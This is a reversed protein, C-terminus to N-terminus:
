PGLDGFLEREVLDCLINTLLLHVEETRVPSPSPVRIEVDNAGLVRAIDGGDGGTLAIVDMGLERASFIAQVTGPSMGTASLAVLVDGSRGLARLQRAFVDATGHNAALSTLLPASDALCFVPLAPRDLDLRSLLKITFHQANAAGGGTGCTFLRGNELLCRVLRAAGTVLAPTQGELASIAADLHSNISDRVADEPTM